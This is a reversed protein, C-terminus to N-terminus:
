RYKEEKTFLDIRLIATTYSETLSDDNNRLLYVREPSQAAQAGDGAFLSRLRDAPRDGPRSFSDPRSLRGALIEEPTVCSYCIQRQGYRDFDHILHLRGDADQQGDPYSVGDREDILLGGQWSAGEDRSIWATLRRRARPDDHYVLVLDGSALRRIFFRSDPGPRYPDPRAQWTLGRRRLFAQGIGDYRRVLMWLRDPQEILM